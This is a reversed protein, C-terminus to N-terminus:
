VEDVVYNVVKQSRHECGSTDECTLKWTQYTEKHKIATLFRGKIDAILNFNVDVLTRTARNAMFLALSTQALKQGRLTAFFGHYM